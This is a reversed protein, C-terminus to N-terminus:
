KCGKIWEDISIKSKQIMLKANTPYLEKSNFIIQLFGIGEKFYTHHTGKTNTHEFGNKILFREAREPKIHKLRSDM